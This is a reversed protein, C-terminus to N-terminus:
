GKIGSRAVSEVLQRQALIFLILAPVSAIVAGAMILAYNTTAAGQLTSLGPPLTLRQPSFLVYVPWLFDNWNSLFSLVALTSLAGKANPLVIRTFIQWANAGDLSASEELERPLSVFFQHLFFVGFAGGASPVIVALLSDLWHLKAIILFNPVLFVFGPVFITAVVIAFVARRGRFHMRALAYAACADVAVVLASNCIGAILSNAFWRLVPTQSSLSLLQSYAATTFPRPIWSLPLTTAGDPTKFSTSVMWLLPALFIIALLILAIWFLSKRVPHGHQPGRGSRSPLTRAVSSM